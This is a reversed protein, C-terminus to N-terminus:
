MMLFVSGRMSAYNEPIDTILGQAGQALLQEALLLSNITYSWIRIHQGRLLAMREETLLESNIALHTIGSHLFTEVAELSDAIAILSSGPLKNAVEKLLALSESGFLLKESSNKYASSFIRIELEEAFRRASSGELKLDLMLKKAGIDLALVDSLTPLPAGRYQPSHWSGVELRAIEASHMANIARTCAGATTRAATTDHIVVPVGDSTLQLDIEIYDVQPLQRAALIAALTNEPACHSAGRHAILSHTSM